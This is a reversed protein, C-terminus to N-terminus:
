LVAYIQFYCSHPSQTLHFIVFLQTITMGLQASNMTAAALDTDNRRGVPPSIGQMQTREVMHPIDYTQRGTESGSLKPDTMRFPKVSDVNM